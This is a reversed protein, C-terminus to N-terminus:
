VVSTTLLRNPARRLLLDTTLVTRVWDGYRGPQRLGPYRFSSLAYEALFDGWAVRAVVHIKASLYEDRVMRACERGSRLGYRNATFSGVPATRAYGDEYGQIVTTDRSEGPRQKLTADAYNGAGPPPPWETGLSVGLRREDQGRAQRIAVREAWAVDMGLELPLRYSQSPQIKGEAREKKTCGTASRRRM